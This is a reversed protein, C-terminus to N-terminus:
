LQAENLLFFPLYLSVSSGLPYPSRQGNKIIDMQPAPDGIARCRLVALEGETNIVNPFELVAAKVACLFV